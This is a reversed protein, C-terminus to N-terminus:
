SMIYSFLCLFLYLKSVQYNNRQLVNHLEEMSFVDILLQPPSSVHKNARTPTDQKNENQVAWTKQKKNQIDFVADKIRKLAPSKREGKCAAIISWLIAPEKWEEHVKIVAKPGM